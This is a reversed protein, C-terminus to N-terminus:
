SVDGNKERQIREYEMGHLDFFVLFALTKAAQENTVDFTKVFLNHITTWRPEKKWAQMLKIYELYCMEGPVQPPKDTSLRLRAQQDIFPM